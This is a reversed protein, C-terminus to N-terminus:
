SCRFCCSQSGELEALTTVHYGQAGFAVALLDYRSNPSLSTPSLLLPHHTSLEPEGSYIGNNNLIIFVIPLQYRCATEIEMASFGFASDGQVTVVRRESELHVLQTAIAYGVGVGMTGLAGADLRSRPQHVQLVVRGIDMTNAGENVIISSPPLLRDILGLVAHYRLPSSVTSIKKELAATNATVKSQM